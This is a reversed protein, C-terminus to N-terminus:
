GREIFNFVIGSLLFLFSSIYAIRVSEKIHRIELPSGADGIFPKTVPVSNYFNIGGLRVKLAGAMAAEPYGSNPSPNKRRDRLAIKFSNRWDLGALASAVPMILGSLRAPIFNLCDDLKASLWGFDKYRDNKYGVTSDLTSAAKYALALPAGGLFAYFLPAIIGDVASEAVTEVTARIIDKDPLNETDRGVIFSLNARASELKGDRLAYYVRMSEAKLDKIALSTYIFFASLAFGLYRNFYTAASILMFIVLYVFGVISVCFIVGAIRQNGINKRLPGELKQALRGIGRVPHPLWVPDGFILDLIYAFLIIIVRENM